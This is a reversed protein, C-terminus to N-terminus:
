KKNLPVVMLISKSADTRSRNLRFYLELYKYISSGKFYCYSQFAVDIISGTFLFEQVLPNMPKKLLKSLLM